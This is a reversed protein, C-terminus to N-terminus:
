IMSNVVSNAFFRIFIGRASLIVTTIGVFKSEDVALPPVSQCARHKMALPPFQALAVLFSLLILKAGQAQDHIHDHQPVGEIDLRHQILQALLAIGDLIFVHRM